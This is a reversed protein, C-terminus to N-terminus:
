MLVCTSSKDVSAQLKEMKKEMEEKMEAQNKLLQALQGEEPGAM